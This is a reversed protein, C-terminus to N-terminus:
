AAVPGFYQYYYCLKLWQHEVGYFGYKDMLLELIEKLEEDVAICGYLDGEDKITKMAYKKMKDTYDIGNEVTNGDADKSFDFAGLNIMETLTYNFINTYIFDAYIKSGQTGDERLEYYYGDDGLVYNIGTSIIVGTMNGESDVESTWYGPSCLTFLEYSKGVYEINFQLTGEYLYDYFAPNIFYTKNAEFYFYMEFNRGDVGEYCFKRAYVNSESLIEENEDMVWCITEQEGLSNIKYVGSEEVSFKFKLGRPLIPKTFTAYNENGVKAEYANFTALGKIPDDMEVGNTGYASYYSCLELWENRNENDGYKHTIANLAEYLEQTVPTTGTLGNSSYSTYQIILNTYDSTGIKCYGNTALLYPTLDKSWHTAYILDALVLPGEKSDVHYYGDNENYYVSSYDVYNGLGLGLNITDEDLENSCYRYIYTPVNIDSIELYRLNKISVMDDGAYGDSDKLYCLTLEYSKTEDSVYAFCTKWDTEIGSLQHIITGDIMVYLFDYDEETSILYDFSLVKGEPIIINTIISSATYDIKTNTTHISKGDESVVWPWTFGPDEDVAAKYTCDIGEGNIANEIEESAPMTVTPIRQAGDDESELSTLPIYDEGIFLEFFEEIEESSSFAGEVGYAVIGYRDIMISTPWGTVGFMSTLGETDSAMPFSLDMEYKFDDILANNDRDSLAIIAIDDSYNKYAEEIEPFEEICWACTTYWFNILVADHTKLQESLTFDTGDSTEVTFDYMVDALKYTTGNPVEKKIVESSLVFDYNYTGKILKLDKDVIYGDPLNPLDVSYNSDNISFSVSGNEDTVMSKVLTDDKYVEVALDSLKRGSIAEVNITYNKIEGEVESSNNGKNCSSLAFTSLLLANLMLFCFKKNM